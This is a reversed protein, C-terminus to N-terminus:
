TANNMPHFYTHYASKLPPRSKCNSIDNPKTLSKFFFFEVFEPPVFNDKQQSLKRNHKDRSIRIEEIVKKNTLYRNFQETLKYDNIVRLLSNIIKM